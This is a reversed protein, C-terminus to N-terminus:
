ACTCWVCMCVVCVHVDCAYWVCMCWVCMHVGCVHVGCMLDTTNYEGEQTIIVNPVLEIGTPEETNSLQHPCQTWM